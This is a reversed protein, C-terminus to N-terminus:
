NEIAQQTVDQLQTTSALFISTTATFVEPDQSAVHHVQNV